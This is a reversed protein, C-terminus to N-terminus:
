MFMGMMPPMKALAKNREVAQRVLNAYIAANIHPPDIVMKFVGMVSAIESYWNRRVQEPTLPKHGKTKMESLRKAEYEVEGLIAKCRALVAKDTKMHEPSVGLDALVERAMEPHGTNCLMICIRACREKMKLKSLRENDTLELKAQTPSAIEKYECMIKASCKLTEGDDPLEDGELLVHTGGSSLEILDALTLQDLRHKM